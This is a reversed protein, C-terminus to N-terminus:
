KNRQKEFFNKLILKSKDVALNSYFNISNNNKDAMFIKGIIELNNEDMNELASYINRVRTQKLASACMPCPDLTVYVDCDILRWNNLNSSAETISKIEAHSLVNNDSEKTNFGSAIVKTSKVIVCGIPVENNEFAKNAEVFALEMFDENYHNM